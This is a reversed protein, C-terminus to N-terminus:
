PEDITWSDQTDALEKQLTAIQMANSPCATGHMGGNEHLDLNDTLPGTLFDGEGMTWIRTRSAGAAGRVKASLHIPVLRSPLASLDALSRFVSMGKKNLVVDGNADVDVDAVAPTGDRRLRGPPRVGLKCWAKGIRPKGGDEFMTRYVKPM